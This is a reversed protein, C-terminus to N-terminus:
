GFGTSAAAQGDTRVAPQARTERGRGASPVTPRPNRSGAKGIVAPRGTPDSGSRVSSSSRRDLRHRRGKPHGSVRASRLSSLGVALDTFERRVSVRAILCSAGALPERAMPRGREVFDVNEVRFSHTLPQPSHVGGVLAVPEPRDSREANTGCRSDRGQCTLRLWGFALTNRRRTADAGVSVLGAKPREVRGGAGPRHAPWAGRLGRLGREGCSFRTDFVTSCPRRRSIRPSRAARGLPRAPGIPRGYEEMSGVISHTLFAPVM